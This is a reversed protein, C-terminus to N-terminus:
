GRGPPRRVIMRQFLDDAEDHIEGVVEEFVDELTLIGTPTTGSLVVAMHSRASQLMRLAGLLTTKADMRVIPRVLPSWDEGGRARFAIFEKTHLLGVV